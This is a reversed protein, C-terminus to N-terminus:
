GPLERVYFRGYYPHIWERSLPDAVIIFEGNMTGEGVIFETQFNGNADTTVTAAFPATYMMEGTESDFDTLPIYAAIVVESNPAYGTGAIPVRDGTDFVTGYTDFSDFPGNATASNLISVFAEQREIVFSGETNLSGNTGEIEWTGGPLNASFNLNIMIVPESSMVEDVFGQAKGTSGVLNPTSVGQEITFTETYAHGDPASLTLTLPPSGVERPYDYVCLLKDTELLNIISFVEMEASRECPMPGMAGVPMPLSPIDNVERYPANFGGNTEIFPPLEFTEAASEEAAPEEAPAQEEAPPETPAAVTPVEQVPEETASVVPGGAGASCASMSAILLILILSYILKKM